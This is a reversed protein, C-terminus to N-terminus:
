RANKRGVATTGYTNARNGRKTELAVKAQKEAVRNRDSTELSTARAEIQRTSTAAGIPLARSMPLVINEIHLRSSSRASSLKSGRDPPRAASASRPIAMDSM